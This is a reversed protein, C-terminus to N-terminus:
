LIGKCTNYNSPFDSKFSRRQWTKSDDYPSYKVGGMILVIWGLTSRSLLSIITMLGTRQTWIRRSYYHTRGLNHAISSPKIDDLRM